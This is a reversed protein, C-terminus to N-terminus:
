DFEQSGVNQEKFSECNPDELFLDGEASRTTCWSSSSTDAPEQEGDRNAHDDKELALRPRLSTSEKLKEVHRRYVRRKNGLGALFADPEAGERESFRM